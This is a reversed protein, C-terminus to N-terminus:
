PPLLFNKWNEFFFKIRKEFAYFCNQLCYLLKVFDDDAAPCVLHQSPLGLVQGCTCKSMYCLWWWSCSAGSTSLQHQMIDAASILQMRCSIIVKYLLKYIYLYYVKFFNFPFLALFDRSIVASDQRFCVILLLMFCLYLWKFCLKGSFIINNIIHWFIKMIYIWM